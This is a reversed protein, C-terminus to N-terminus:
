GAPPPDQELAEPFPTLPAEAARLTDQLQPRLQFPQLMHNMAELPRQGPFPGGSGLLFKLRESNWTPPDPM